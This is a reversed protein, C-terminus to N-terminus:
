IGFIFDSTKGGKKQKSINYFHLYKIANFPKGGKVQYLKGDYYINFKNRGLVSAAEVNDFDFVYKKEGKEVVIRDGYLSIDANKHLLIRKKTPIVLSFRCKEKYAPSDVYKSFDVKTIFDEQYKYWDLVTKFPFDGTFKMDSGYVAKRGCHTCTLTDNHSTFTSLGCEPCIYIVRELYEASKKYYFREGCEADNYYLEKKVVEYLEEKTMDKYEDYELVRTIGATMRGRRVHNTGFRPEAGFGGRIMFFAVPLKLHQILPVIAPNIYCTEGSFTRHGEPSFSVTAGSRAARLCQMVAKPDHKQKKIPIPGWCFDIVRSIFGNSLIDDGAIFVPAGKIAYLVFFQDFSTQHNFLILYNRKGQDKFKEVKIRYFLKSYLYTIFRGFNMFFRHRM